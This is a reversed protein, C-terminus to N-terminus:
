SSQRKGSNGENTKRRIIMPDCNLAFQSGTAKRILENLRFLQEKITTEKNTKFIQLNCM